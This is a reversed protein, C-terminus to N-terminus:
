PLYPGSTRYEKHVQSTREHSLSSSKPTPPRATGSPPGRTRRRRGTRARREDIKWSAGQLVPLIPTRVALLSSGTVSGTTPGGMGAIGRGSRASTLRLSALFPLTLEHTFSRPVLFSDPPRVIPRYQADPSRCAPLALPSRHGAGHSLRSHQGPQVMHNNENAVQIQGGGVVFTETERHGRAALVGVPNLAYRGSVMRHHIRSRVQRKGSGPFTGRVVDPAPSPEERTFAQCIVAHGGVVELGVHSSQAGEAEAHFTGVIASAPKRVAHSRQREALNRWSPLSNGNRISSRVGRSIRTGPPGAASCGFPAVPM